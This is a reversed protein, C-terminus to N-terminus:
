VFKLHTFNDCYCVQTAAASTHLLSNIKEESFDDDDDSVVFDDFLLQAKPATYQVHVMQEAVDNARRTEKNLEESLEAIEDEKEGLKKQM